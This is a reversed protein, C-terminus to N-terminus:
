KRMAADIAEDYSDLWDTVVSDRATCRYRGRFVEVEIAPNEKRWRYRLADRQLEALIQRFQAMDVQQAENLDM